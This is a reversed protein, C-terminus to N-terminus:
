KALARRPVSRRRLNGNHVWDNGLETLSGDDASSFLANYNSVYGDPNQNQAFDGFWAVREVYGEGQLFEMCRHMWQDVQDESPNSSAVAGLETMWIPLGYAGHVAQVYQVLGNFGNDDATGYFHLAIFNPRRGYQNQLTSMFSGLWNQDYSMQPSSIRIGKDQYQALENVWQQAATQPDTNAQGSQDPENQALINAPTYISNITNKVNQWQSYLKQGWFMPVWEINEFGPVGGQDYHHYWGVQDQAVSATWQGGTQGPWALGRELAFAPSAVLALAAALRMFSSTSVM